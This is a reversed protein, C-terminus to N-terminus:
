AGFADKMRRELDDAESRVDSPSAPLLALEGDKHVVKFDAPSLGAAIAGKILRTVDAQRFAVRTM